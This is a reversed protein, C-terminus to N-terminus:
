FLANENEIKHGLIKEKRESSDGAFWSALTSSYNEDKTLKVLNPNNIIKEYEDDELSALGKKYEIDWKKIDSISNVWQEYEDNTYFEKKSKKNKAVVLPTMVKFIRGEDFLEPWYKAFFNILSASIADGDPDADVYIYIKGYRLNKPAEGLKLGISGMLNKVEDNQIVKANTLESVNIFKGKLPFAGMLQTNRFKRVASLASMGEYIGLICYKRDYKKKADILKLVKTSSLNKNLKKLERREEELKKRRVWELLNKTIESEFVEKMFRDSVKHETGFDAVSSVLKTKTQSDFESNIISANIFIFIHQRIDSPRIELKFKKKVKERLWGIIQNMIYDVHTGGDKTEVSNVYSVHKFGRTSYGIVIEWDKTKEHYVKDLYLQAYEKFTRFRYLEGNLYIKLRPNVAAIDIIRKKILDISIEDIGEDQMSFRNFDPHYTIETFNKQSKTIMPRTRDKMNNTYTQNFMNSGDATKVVFESSFINTVTAGVGHLGATRRQETDDFNSGAKLNTFIMEPIWEKHEPHKKVPIGGNDWVSITRTTTDVKVKITNLRTNRTSEDVSNSIIEDFLKIFGPNFTVNFLKFKKDDMLYIESKHFKTSGIYMGPRLLCHEIDDLKKYRLLEEKKTM